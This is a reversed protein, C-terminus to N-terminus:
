QRCRQALCPSRVRGACRPNPTQDRLAAGGRGRDTELWFHERQWPYNPLPVLTGNPNHREWDLVAGNAFASAVARHVRPTEPEGRRLTEVLRIEKGNGRACENLASRLVPHPGIEIFTAYGDNLLNGVAKMFEVPQRVNRAWYAADYAVDNVVSGTVTSYLTRAPLNPALASLAEKLEDIIPDMLHSHYAVEVKLEKNFVEDKTLADSLRRISVTDGGVTLTNPGNIAAIDLAAGFPELYPRLLEAGIGVALMGGSGATKAQTRSRHYSVTLAEELSLAGSAWASSVEGVSHGVIAGPKVGADELLRTLGLQVMFNGPQAFETRTISSEAESKLMEELISFGAIDKFIADAEDLAARFIANDRYLEQGMAWWQPGMGTYVFVPREEAGFARDGTVVSDCTGTDAFEALATQLARGDQGIAVARHSLHARHRSASHLLDDLDTDGAALLDAYRRAM